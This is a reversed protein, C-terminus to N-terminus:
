QGLSLQGADNGGIAPPCSWIAVFSCASAMYNHTSACLAFVIDLEQRRQDLALHFIPEHHAVRNRLDLLRSCIQAIIPRAMEDGHSFVRRTLNYRWAFPVEYARALLAVWFGASLDAVVQDLTPTSGRNMRQREVTEDLKRRENKTFAGRARPDTTWTPGYKWLLFQNLRNRLAIDWSQLPLYLSQSLQSNWHYLQLAEKTNGSAHKLYKSLRPKSITSVFENVRQEDELFIAQM